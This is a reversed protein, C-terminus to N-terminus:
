GQGREARATASFEIGERRGLEKPAGIIDYTRGDFEIQATADVAVTVTSYRVQFRHTITSSPQAARMREGDSVFSVSAWVPGVPVDTIQAEGFGNKIGNVRTNFMIRRDLDGAFLAM